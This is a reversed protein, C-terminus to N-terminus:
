EAQPGFDVEVKAGPIVATLSFRAGGFRCDLCGATEGMGSACLGGAQVIGRVIAEIDAPAGDARLAGVVGRLAHLANEELDTLVGVAEPSAGGNARLLNM